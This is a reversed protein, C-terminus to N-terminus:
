DGEFEELMSDYDPLPPSGDYIDFERRQLYASRILAYTDFENEYQDTIPLFEARRVVFSMALPFYNGRDSAYWAVPDLGGTGALAGGNRVGQGLSDRVTGAGVLPLVLYRSDSWGWVALTQGFDETHLPLGADSAPDFLGGLGLVLNLSFRGLSQLSAKFKGQLATNVITVPQSINTFFNSLMWQGGDPVVTVYGRAVPKLIAKDLTENVTHMSRNFGEWPDNEPDSPGNPLTTCAGLAASLAASLMLTGVFRRTRMEPKTWMPCGLRM